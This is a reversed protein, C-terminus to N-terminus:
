ILRQRLFFLSLRTGHLFLFHFIRHIIGMSAPSYPARVASQVIYNLFFILVKYQLSLVDGLLM